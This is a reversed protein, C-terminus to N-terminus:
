LSTDRHISSTTQAQSALLCQKRPKPVSQGISGRAARARENVENNMPVQRRPKVVLSQIVFSPVVVFRMVM